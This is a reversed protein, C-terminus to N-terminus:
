RVTCGTVFLYMSMTCLKNLSKRNKVNVFHVTKFGRLVLNFCNNLRYFVIIKITKYKTQRIGDQTVLNCSSALMYIRTYSNM